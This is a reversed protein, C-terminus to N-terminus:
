AGHGKHWSGRDADRAIPPEVPNGGKCISLQIRARHCRDKPRSRTRSLIPLSFSIEGGTLSPLAGPM